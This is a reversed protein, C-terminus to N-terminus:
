TKMKELNLKMTAPDESVLKIIVDNVFKIVFNLLDKERMRQMVCM